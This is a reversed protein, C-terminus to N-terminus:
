SYTEIQIEAGLNWGIRQVFHSLQKNTLRNLEHDLILSNNTTYDAWEKETSYPLRFYFKEEYEREVDRLPQFTGITNLMEKAKWKEYATKFKMSVKLRKRLNFDMIDMPEYIILNLDHHTEIYDLKIQQEQCIIDYDIKVGCLQLVQITANPGTGGYGCNCGNLWLEIKSDDNRMVFHYNKKVDSREGNYVYSCPVDKYKDPIDKQHQYVEFSTINGLIPLISKVFKVCANSSGEFRLIRMM